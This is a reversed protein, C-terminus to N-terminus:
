RDTRFKGLKYKIVRAIQIISFKLAGFLFRIDFDLLFHNILLSNVFALNRKIALVSTAQHSHVRYRLLVEPINSFKFGAKRLRIWLDWDEAYAGFNYGGVSLIASKRFAVTPHAMTTEYFLKQWIKNSCTPPCVEKKIIKDYEDIVMYYSGVVSIDRNTSMYELIREVRTPEAIDDADMRIILESSSAAIGYNLNYPLQGIPTRLCKFRGDEIKKITNWLQDSCNNAVIIVEFDSISQALLSDICRAFFGDDKNIPLVISARCPPSAKESMARALVVNSM